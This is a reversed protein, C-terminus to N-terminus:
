LYERKFESYSMIITFVDGSYLIINMTNRGNYKKVLPYFSEIRATDIVGKDTYYEPESEIGLGELKNEETFLIEFERLM